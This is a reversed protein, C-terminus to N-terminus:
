WRRAKCAAARFYRQVPPPLAELERLEDRTPSTAERPPTIRGAERTQMLAEKTRARARTGYAALGSGALALALAAFALWLLGTTL